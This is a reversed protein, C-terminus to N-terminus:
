QKRHTDSTRPTESTVELQMSREPSSTVDPMPQAQGFSAPSPQAEFMETGPSSTHDPKDSFPKTAERIARILVRAIERNPLSNKRALQACDGVYDLNWRRFRLEVAKTYPHVRNQITTTVIIAFGIMTAVSVHTGTQNASTAPSFSSGTITFYAGGIVEIAALFVSMSRYGFSGRGLKRTLKGAQRELTDLYASFEEERSLHRKSRVDSALAFGAAVVVLLFLISILTLTIHHASLSLSILRM